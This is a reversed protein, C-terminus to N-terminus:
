GSVTICGGQKGFNACAQTLLQIARKERKGRKLINQMKKWPFANFKPNFNTDRMKPFHYLIYYSFERWGLESLFKDLHKSPETTHKAKHWVYHPSIEGMQLYPSLRSIMDEHPFDRHTAYADIKKELFTNLTKHAGKEGPQWYQHFKEAWNPKQPILHWDDLADSSIKNPYPQLAKPASEVARPEIHQAAAKYFPTFVQFPKKIPENSGM